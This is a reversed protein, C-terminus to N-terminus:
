TDGESKSRFTSTVPISHADEDRGKSHSTGRIIGKLPRCSHDGQFFSVSFFFAIFFSAIFSPEYFVCSFFTGLSHKNLSKSKVKMKGEKVGSSSNKDMERRKWRKEEDENREGEDVRWRRGPCELVTRVQWWPGPALVENWEEKVKWLESPFSKMERRGRLPNCWPASQLRKM